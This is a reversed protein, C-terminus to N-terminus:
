RSPEPSAARDRHPNREIPEGAGTAWRWLFLPWLAAIGPLILLRLTKPAETVRPDLRDVGRLLFVLAFSVGAVAYAEFATVVIQAVELPV